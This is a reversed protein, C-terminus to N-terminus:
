FISYEGEPFFKPCYKSLLLTKRSGIKRSLFIYKRCLLNSLDKMTKHVLTHMYIVDTVSHM